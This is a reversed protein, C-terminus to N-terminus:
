TQDIINANIIPCYESEIYAFNANTTDFHRCSTVQFVHHKEAGSLSSKEFFESTKYSMPLTIQPILTQTSNQDERRSKDGGKMYIVRWIKLNGMLCKWFGTRFKVLTPNM